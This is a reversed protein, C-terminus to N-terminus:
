AKVEADGLPNGENFNRANELTVVAITQMAERTFFAQNPYADWALVTMGYGKCIRAMCVGIKGTGIIGAVKNHFDVGLLGSLAFNNDKVKNYAKHLHRNAEQWFPLNSHM